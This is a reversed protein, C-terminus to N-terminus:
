KRLEEIRERWTKRQVLVDKYQKSYKVLISIMDTIFTLPKDLAMIDEFTRAIIYDTDNLEKQLEAIEEEKNQRDIQAKKKEEDLVIKGDVLHYCYLYEFDFDDDVEYNGTLYDTIFRSIYNDKDFEIKARM